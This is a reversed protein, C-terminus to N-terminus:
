RLPNYQDPLPPWGPIHTHFGSAGGYASVPMARLTDNDGPLDEDPDEM